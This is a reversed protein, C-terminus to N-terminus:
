LRVPLYVQPDRPANDRRLEFHLTPRKAEGSAGISAIAQHVRVAEGERVLIRGLYAYATVWGRGHDIVILQGFREPERGAFIVRGAAAARVTMGAFASLDIGNNPRGGVPVGFRGVVAGSAPWTLLPAGPERVRSPPPTPRFSPAPRPAPSPRLVPKASRPAVSPQGAPASPQAAAPRRIKQGIRIVYPSPIGNAEGLTKMDVGLRRAIAQFTDGPAVVYVEADPARTAPNQAALPAAALLALLALAATTAAGRM